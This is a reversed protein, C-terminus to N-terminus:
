DMRTGNEGFIGINKNHFEHYKSKFISRPKHYIGSSFINYMLKYAFIMQHLITVKSFDNFFLSMTYVGCMFTFTPYHLKLHIGALQVNFARDSTAIDSLKNAPDIEKM